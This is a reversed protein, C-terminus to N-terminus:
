KNKFYHNILNEAAEEGIYMRQGLAVEAGLSKTYYELLATKAVFGVYGKFGLEMSIKCAYAFLNGGVGFYVKNKGRNFHANEVIGISIFNDEIILSLLGQIINKNEITVMKYIIKEKNKIESHWDFLWEKKKIEKSAVKSFETQFVEGTVVNEISNTLKDIEIDVLRAQKKV